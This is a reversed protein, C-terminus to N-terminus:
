ERRLSRLVLEQLITLDLPSEKSPSYGPNNMVDAMRQIMLIFSHSINRSKYQSFECIFKSYKNRVGVKIKIFNPENLANKCLFSFIQCFSTDSQVSINIMLTSSQEPIIQFDTVAMFFIRRQEQQTHFTLINEIHCKYSNSLTVTFHKKETM